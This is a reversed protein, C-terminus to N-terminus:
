EEGEDSANEGDGGPPTAPMRDLSESLALLAERARSDTAALEFVRNRAELQIPQGDKGTHEVRDKRGWRDPFKRELRWASAQWQGTGAAKDINLVDRMEAEALAKNVSNLFDRYVGSKEKNGKKLWYYLTPKAIGAFTAATEMYNGARIATVIKHVVADNIEPPRGNPRKPKTTSTEAALREPTAEPEVPAVKPKRGPKKAPRVKQNERKELERQKKVVDPMTTM